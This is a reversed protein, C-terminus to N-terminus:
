KYKLLYKCRMYSLKMVRSISYVNFYMKKIEARDIPMGVNIQRDLMNYIFRNSFFKIAKLLHKDNTNEFIQRLTYYACFYTNPKTTVQNVTGQHYYALVSNIFINYNSVNLWRIWTDVDGGRKCLNDIPFGGAKDIINRHIVVAGTWVYEPNKLYDTLTFRSFVLDKNTSDERLEEKFNPNTIKKWKSSILSVSSNKMIAQHVLELYNEGWEDDGDLFAIWDYKAKEIGLNRAAYGGAGPIERKFTRVRPDTYKRIIDSSGDTSADDILILEFQSYSQGLISNVMRNIHPAKNHVPVIVSFM